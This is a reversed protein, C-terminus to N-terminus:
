YFSFIAKPIVDAYDVFNVAFHALMIAPLSRTILYAIMFVAGIVSTIVVIQLGLSWHILGFVISSIVVIIFSNQTYRSIFTYMYGRFVLEEFVGVMLLGFTLDIWDWANSTIAPMAGLKSYGSLKAILKYGNQDIIIGILSVTLFVIFFLPITQTTLGFDSARMKKSYLLWITVLCPFLKVSIYDIFLWWQWKKVYISSFDNLYFPTALLILAM